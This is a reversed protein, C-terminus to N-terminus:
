ATVAVEQGEGEKTLPARLSGRPKEKMPHSGTVTWPWRRGRLDRRGPGSAFPVGRPRPSRCCAAWAQAHRQIGLELGPGHFRRAESPATM